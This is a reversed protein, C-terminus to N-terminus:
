SKPPITRMRVTNISQVQITKCLFLKSWIDSLSYLCMFPMLITSFRILLTFYAIQISAAFTPLCSNQVIGVIFSPSTLSLFLSALTLLQIFMRRHRRWNLLNNQVRRKQKLVRVILMLTFSTLISVPIFNHAIRFFLAVSPIRLACVYGCFLSQMNFQHTCPYLLVIVVNSSIPYIGAMLFVPMYHFLLRGRSTTFLSSRFILLHREMSSWAMTWYISTTCLANFFNWSICMANTAPTARGTRLYNLTFPHSLFSDFISIILLALLTHNYLTLRLRRNLVLHTLTFISCIISPIHFIQMIIYKIQNSPDVNMVNNSLTTNSM